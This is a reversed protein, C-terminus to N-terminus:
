SIAQLEEGRCLGRNGIGTGIGTGIDTGIGTGSGTGSGIGTEATPSVRVVPKVLNQCVHQHSQHGIPVYYHLLVCFAFAFPLAYRLLLMVNMLLHVVTLHM